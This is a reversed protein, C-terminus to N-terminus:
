CVSLVFPLFHRVYLQAMSSRRADDSADLSLGLPQMACLEIRFRNGPVTDTGPLDNITPPTFALQDSALYVRRADLRYADLKFKSADVSNLTPVASQIGRSLLKLLNQDPPASGGVIQTSSGDLPPKASAVVRHGLYDVVVRLGFQLQNVVASLQPENETVGPNSFINSLVTQLGRVGQSACHAAVEPPGLESEAGPATVVELIINNALYIPVHPSVRKISRKQEPVFLESVATRSCEVAALEFRRTLSIMKELTVLMDQTLEEMMGDTEQQRQLDSYKQRIAALEQM